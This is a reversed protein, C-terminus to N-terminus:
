SRANASSPYGKGKLASLPFAVETAGKANRTVAGTNSNTKSMDVEVPNGEADRAMQNLGKLIAERDKASLSDLSVGYADLVTRLNEETNTGLEYVDRYIKIKGDEVVITEYRLEVPVPASLNIEKSVDKKTAYSAVEAPTLETGSIGALVTAFDQVQQNTLGVCGHSAFKGLRAPAKGGHILTPLGVPIKIPGLPNDKSGAEVNQGPKYKGKVWAEDPPTWDPNFIISRAKRLGTPIPFEPYGIGIKYTKILKGDKFVDMRYAPTNVVIRTDNPVENPQGKALGESDASLRQQLFAMFAKAKDDGLARHIEKEAKQAASRTSRANTDGTESLDLVDKRAIDKLKQLQEDSLGLKAKADKAFSADTMLADLVPLTITEKAATSPEPINELPSSSAAPTVTSAANGNNVTHTECGCILSSTLIVLGLLTGSMKRVSNRM